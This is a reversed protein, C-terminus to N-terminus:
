SAANKLLRIPSLANRSFARRARRPSRSAYEAL